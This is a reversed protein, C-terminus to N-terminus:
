NVAPYKIVWWKIEGNDDMKCVKDLIEKNHHRLNIGNDSFHGYLGDYRNDNIDIASGFFGFGQCEYGYPLHDVLKEM